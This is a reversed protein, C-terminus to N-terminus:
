LDRRHDQNANRLVTRLALTLRESERGETQERTYERWAEDGNHPRVRYRILYAGDDRQTIVPLWGTFRALKRLLERDEEKRVIDALAGLPIAAPEPAEEGLEAHEEATLGLEAAQAAAKLATTAEEVEEAIVMRTVHDAARLKAASVAVDYQSGEDTGRFDEPGFGFDQQATFVPTGDPADGADVARVTRTLKEVPIGPTPDAPDHVPSFRELFPVRGLSVMGGSEDDTYYVAGGAVRDVTIVREASRVSQTDRWRGHGTDLYHERAAPGAVIGRLNAAAAALAEAGPLRSGLPLAPEDDASMVRGVGTQNKEVQIVAAGHVVVLDRPSVGADHLLKRLENVQEGPVGDPIALITLMPSM